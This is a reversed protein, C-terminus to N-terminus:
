SIFMVFSVRTGIRLSNEIRIMKYRKIMAPKKRSNGYRISSFANQIATRSYKIHGVLKARGICSPGIQVFFSCSNMDVNMEIKINM